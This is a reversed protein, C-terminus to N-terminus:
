HGHHAEQHKLRQLSQSVGLVAPLRGHVKAREVRRAVRGAWRESGYGEALVLGTVERCTADEADALRPLWTAIERLECEARAMLNRAARSSMGLQVTPSPGQPAVGSMEAFRARWAPAFVERLGVGFRLFAWARVRDLRPHRPIWRWPARARFVSYAEWVARRALAGRFEAVAQGWPRLPNM